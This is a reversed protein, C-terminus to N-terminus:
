LEPFKLSKGSRNFLLEDRTLALGVVVEFNRGSTQAGARPIVINDLDVTIRSVPSKKKFEAMHAFTEKAIVEQNTRTVAVFYRYEREYGDAAPGRGFALDIEVEAKIPVDGYYRCQLRVAEVEATWAITEPTKAVPGYGDPEAFAVLRSADQLVLAAPCPAPNAARSARANDKSACGVLGSLLGAAILATLTGTKM